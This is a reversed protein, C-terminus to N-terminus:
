PFSDPRHEDALKIGLRRRLLALVLVTGTTGAVRRAAECSQALLRRKGLTRRTAPGAVPDRRGAWGGGDEARCAPAARAPPPSRKGEDWALTLVMRPLWIALAVAQEMMEEM